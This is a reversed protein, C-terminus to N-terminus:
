PEPLRQWCGDPPSTLPKTANSALQPRGAICLHRTSALEFKAVLQRLKEAESALSTGSASEEEVMAANQQPTPDMQNVAM